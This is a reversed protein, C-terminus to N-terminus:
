LWTACECVFPLTLSGRGGTMSPVLLSPALTATSPSAGADGVPPTLRGLAASADVYTGDNWHVASPQLASMSTSISSSTSSSAPAVLDLSTAQSPADGDFASAGLRQWWRGDDSSAVSILRALTTPPCPRKDIHSLNVSQLLLPRPARQPRDHNIYACAETTRHAAAAATARWRAHQVYM